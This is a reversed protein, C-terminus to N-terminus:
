FSKFVYLKRKNGDQSGYILVVPNKQRKGAQPVPSQARERDEDEEQLRAREAAAEKKAPIDKDSNLV